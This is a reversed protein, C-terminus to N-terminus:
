HVNADVERIEFRQHCVGCEYSGYEESSPVKVLNRICDHKGENKM